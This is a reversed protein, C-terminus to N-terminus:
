GIVHLTRLLTVDVSVVPKEHFTFVGQLPFHYTKHFTIKGELSTILTTIYPITNTLHLSYVVPAIDMAKKVFVRDAHKNAKQAGFPPNMLVTDAKITVTNIDQCLFIVSLNHAKAFKKAEDISNKDIDIGTVKTAHSMMAGFAFIGTGCGLDVISKGAIDNSCFATYIIDSVISAPTQYQELSATPNQFPPVRQLFIELQKKKLQM